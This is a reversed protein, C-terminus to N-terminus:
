FYLQVIDRTCTRRSPLQFRPCARAMFKIFGPREGFFPLEDEVVMAAFAKRFADQDFRWTSVGEGQILQITGQKPDKEFKNPNLKCYELHRALSMTGHGKSEAKMCRGCYKCKASKLFGKDDKIKIFHNWVDSRPAMVKRAKEKGTGTELDIVV